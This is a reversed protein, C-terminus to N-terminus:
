RDISRVIRVQRSDNSFLEIFRKKHSFLLCRGNALASTVVRVNVTTSRDTGDKPWPFHFIPGRKLWDSYSEPGSDNFKLGSYLYTANYMRKMFQTTNAAYELVASPTPKSEGAYEVQLNTLGRELNAGIVFKNVSYLTSAIQSDQFAITLGVTSPSVDFTLTSSGTCPLIQVDTSKTDLFYKGASLRPGYVRPVLLDFKTIRFTFNTNHTKDAGISEIANKQYTPNPFPTFIIAHRGPPLASSIDWIGHNVRFTLEFKFGNDVNIKRIRRFNYIGALMVVTQVNSVRLTPGAPAYSVNYRIVGIVGGVDIEIIDGPRWVTDSNIPGTGAGIGFTIVGDGDGIAITNLANYGLAARSTVSIEGNEQGTEVTVKEMRDNFGPKWIEIDDLYNDLQGKSDTLRKKLTDIQPFNSPINTAQKGDIEYRIGSFLASALNISPAVGDDKTLQTASTAGALLCQIRGFARQPLIWQNGSTEMDFRIEGNGFNSTTDDTINRRPELKAYRYDTMNSMSSLEEVSEPLDFISTM